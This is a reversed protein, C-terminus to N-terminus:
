ENGAHSPAFSMLEVDRHSSDIIFASNRMPFSISPVPSYASDIIFHKTEVLDVIGGRRRMLRALM